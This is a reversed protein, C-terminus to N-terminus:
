PELKLLQKRIRSRRAAIVAGAIAGFAVHDAIQPGKELRSILPFRPGILELDIGAIAIGAAAGWLLTKRRPLFLALLLGWAFSIGLHVPVAAAILKSRSADPGLVMSGAAATAELPDNGKILAYVTSPVGSLLAAAAGAALGDHATTVLGRDSFSQQTRM